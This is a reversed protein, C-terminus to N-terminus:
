KADGKLLELQLKGKKKNVQMVKYRLGGIEVESYRNPLRGIRTYAVTQQKLIEKEAELAKQMNECLRGTIVEDNENMAQM